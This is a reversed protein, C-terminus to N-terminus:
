HISAILIIKKIVLTLMIYGGTRTKMAGDGNESGRVSSVVTNLLCPPIMDRITGAIERYARHM